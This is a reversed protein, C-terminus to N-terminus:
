TANLFVAEADGIAMVPDGFWEIMTVVKAAPFKDSLERDRPLIIATMIGDGLHVTTYKRPDIAVSRLVPVETLKASGNEEDLYRECCQSAYTQLLELDTEAPMEALAAPLLLPANGIIDDATWWDRVPGKPSRHQVILTGTGNQLHTEVDSWQVFRGESVLRACMDKERRNQQLRYIFELPVSVITAILLVAFILPSLLMCLLWYPWFWWQLRESKDAAPETV